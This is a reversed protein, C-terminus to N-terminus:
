PGRAFYVRFPGIVRPRMFESASELFALKGADEEPAVVAAIGLERAWGEFEGATMSELPRGFLTIGDREEALKTIPRSGTSGSYTRGAVPSPHTVTGNVIVRGSQVPTLATIHSHARWWEPRYDLAISSRLFLVRGPPAERLAQWLADIRTGRVVEGYKPWEGRSPWLTLAPEPSGGSLALAVLLMTAVAAPVGARRLAEALHPAMLAAGIIVALLFRDVLRDAPLWLIGLPGVALADLAIIAAMAPTQAHLWREVPPGDGARRMAIWAAAQTLIMVIVLPRAIQWFL